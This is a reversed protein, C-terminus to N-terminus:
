ATLEQDRRASRALARIQRAARTRDTPVPEGLRRRASALEEAGQLLLDSLARYYAREGPHQRALRRASWAAQRLRTVTDAPM